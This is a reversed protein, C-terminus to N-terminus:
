TESMLLWIKPLWTLHYYSHEPSMKAQLQDWTMAPWAQRLQYHSSNQTDRPPSPDNTERGNPELKANHCHVSSQSEPLSTLHCCEVTEKYYVIKTKVKVSKCQLGQLLVRALNDM